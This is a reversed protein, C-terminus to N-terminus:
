EAAEDANLLAHLGAATEAPYELMPMHAAGAIEVVQATPAVAKADFARALPILTDDTGHILVLAEMFSGLFESLDKREAMAGLAGVVAAPSQKAMLDRVLGQVKPDATLKPTMADVLGGTGSARVSEITKYRGARGEATDAGCQSSVLCLGSVRGPYKRAFALAVYGGMSHGALMAEDLELHDLLAAIDGAMETVTYPTEVTTSRGFGRLDPVIVDFADTLLPVVQDWISSDLPFGHILVLPTNRGKGHRRYALELGNHTITKM